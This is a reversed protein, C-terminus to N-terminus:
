CCALPTKFSGEHKIKFTLCTQADGPQGQTGASRYVQGGGRWPLVVGKSHSTKGESPYNHGVVGGRSGVLPEHFVDFGFCSLFGWSGIWDPTREVHRLQQHFLPGVELGLPAWPEVATPRPALKWTKWPRRM